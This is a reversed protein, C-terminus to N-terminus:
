SHCILLLFFTVINIAPSKQLVYRWVSRCVNWLKKKKEKQLLERCSIPKEAARQELNEHDVATSPSFPRVSSRNYVVRILSKLKKHRFFSFFYFSFAYDNLFISGNKRRNIENKWEKKPAFNIKKKERGFFQEALSFHPSWKIKSETSYFNIQQFLLEEIIYFSSFFLFLKLM